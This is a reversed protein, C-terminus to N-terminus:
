SASPEPTSAPLRKAMVLESGGGSSRHVKLEDMYARMLFIGRGSTKMINEEALPDPVDELNFGSGEDHIRVIFRSEVVEFVLRVLKDPSQRNGYFIANAVGERIALSIRHKDEEDFGLSAAVCGSMEEALHVSDLRTQFIVEIRHREPAM